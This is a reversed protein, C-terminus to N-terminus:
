TVIEECRFDRRINAIFDNQQAAAQGAEALALSATLRCIHVKKRRLYSNRASILNPYCLRKGQGDLVFRKRDANFWSLVVGNERYIEVVWAGCPTVKVVRFYRLNVPMAGPTFPNGYDVGGDEIRFYIAGLIAM